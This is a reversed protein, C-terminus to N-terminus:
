AKRPNKLKKSANIKNKKNKTSIKGNIINKTENIKKFFYLSHGTFIPVKQTM